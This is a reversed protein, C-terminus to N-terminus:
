YNEDNMTEAIREWDIIEWDPNDGIDERFGACMEYATFEVFARIYFATKPVHKVAYYLNEDNNLWLSVLWTARNKWGNYTNDTEM